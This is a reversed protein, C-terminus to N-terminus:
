GPLEILRARFTRQADDGGAWERWAEEPVMMSHRYLSAEFAAARMWRRGVAPDMVQVWGGRRAWVVVFHTLGDPHVIVAIAPLHRTERRLVHDAPVLVQEAGLGLQVAVTELVDISTGDVDTQCAERLRGYSVDVGHGALLSALAAPGCDMASTQVVEPALWRRRM